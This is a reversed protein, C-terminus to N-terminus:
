LMTVGEDTPEPKYAILVKRVDEDVRMPLYDKLAPRGGPKLGDNIGKVIQQFGDPDLDRMSIRGKFTHAARRPQPINQIHQQGNANVIRQVIEVGGHALYKESPAWGPTHSEFEAILKM